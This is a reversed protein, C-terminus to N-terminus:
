SIKEDTLIHYIQVKIVYKLIFTKLKLAKNHMMSAFTAGNSILSNSFHSLFNSYIVM